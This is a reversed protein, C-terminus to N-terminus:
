SVTFQRILSKFINEWLCGSKSQLYHSLDPSVSQRIAHDILPTGFLYKTCVPLFEYTNAERPM